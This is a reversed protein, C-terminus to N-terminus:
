HAGGLLEKDLSIGCKPCRYTMAGRGSVIFLAVTGMPKVCNPCATRYLRWNMWVFAAAAGFRLAGCLAGSKTVYQSAIGFTVALVIFGLGSKVWRRTLYSRITM